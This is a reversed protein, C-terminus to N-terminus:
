GNCGHTIELKNSQSRQAGSDQATRKQKRARRDYTPQQDFLSLKETLEADKKEKPAKSCGILNIM